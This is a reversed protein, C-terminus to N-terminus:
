GLNWERSSVGEVKVTPTVPECTVTFTEDQTWTPGSGDVFRVLLGYQVAYWGPGTITQGDWVKDGTEGDRTCSVVLDDGAVSGGASTITFAFLGRKDDQFFGASYMVEVTGTTTTFSTVLLPQAVEAGTVEAPVALKAQRKAQLLSMAMHGWKSGTFEMGDYTKDYIDDDGHYRRVAVLDACFLATLRVVFAPYAGDTAQVPTVMLPSLYDNVLDSALALEADQDATETLIDGAREMIGLVDDWSCYPM